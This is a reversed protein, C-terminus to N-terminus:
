RLLRALPSNPILDDRVSDFPVFVTQQGAAYPAIEYVNWYFVFGQPTVYFDELNAFTEQQDAAIQSGDNVFSEIETRAEEFLAEDWEDLLQRRIRQMFPKLSEAKIFDGLQYREGKELGVTIGTMWPLGHAGGTYSYGQIVLSLLGDQFLETTYSLSQAYNFYAPMEDDGSEELLSELDGRCEALYRQASAQFDYEDATTTAVIGPFAVDQIIRNVKDWREYSEESQAYAPELAPYALEYVCRDVSGDNWTAHYFRTALGAAEYTPALALTPAPSNSGTPAAAPACGAGLATLSAM